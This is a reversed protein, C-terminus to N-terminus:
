KGKQFAEMVEMEGQCLRVKIWDTDGQLNVIYITPHNPSEIEQIIFIKYDYYTSKVQARINRPLHKEEYYKMVFSLDGRNSYVIRHQVSDKFFVAVYSENNRHWLANTADGYRSVFDRMARVNIDNLYQSKAHMPKVKAAALSHRSQQSYACGSLVVISIGTTIFIKKM